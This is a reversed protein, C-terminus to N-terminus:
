PTPAANDVVRPVRPNARAWEKGSERALLMHFAASSYEWSSLRVLSPHMTKPMRAAAATERSLIAANQFRAQNSRLVLKWHRIRTALEKYVIRWELVWTRYDAGTMNQPFHRYDAVVPQTPTNM